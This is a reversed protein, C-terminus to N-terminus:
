LVAFTDRFKSSKYSQEKTWYGQAKLRNAPIAAGWGEASADTAIEIAADQPKIARGKWSEFAQLWWKLDKCSKRSRLCKYPNRLLLKAPTVAKTMSVIQGAIKALARAIVQGKKFERKIDKIVAAIRCKPIILWVADNDM